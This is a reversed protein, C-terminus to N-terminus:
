SGNKKMEVFDLDEVDEKRLKKAVMRNVAEDIAKITEDTTNPLVKPDTTFRLVINKKGAAPNIEEPSSYKNLKDAFEMLKQKAKMGEILVYPDKVKHVDIIAQIQEIDIMLMQTLREREYYKVAVYQSGRYFKTHQWVKQATRLDCKFKDKLLNIITKDSASPHERALADATDLKMAYEKEQPLLSETSHNKAAEMIREIAAEAIKIDFQEETM